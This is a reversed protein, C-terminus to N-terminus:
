EAIEWQAFEEPHDKQLKNLTDKRLSSLNKTIGKINM